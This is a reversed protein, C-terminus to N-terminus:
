GRAAADPNTNVSRALIRDTQLTERFTRAALEALAEADSPVGERIVITM